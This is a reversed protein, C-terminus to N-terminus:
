VSHQFQCRMPVNRVYADLTAKPDFGPRPARLLLADFSAEVLRADGGKAKVTKPIAYLVLETGDNLQLALTFVGTSFAIVTTATGDADSYKLTGNRNSLTLNFEAFDGPIEGELTIGSGGANTAQCSLTANSAGAYLQTAFALLSLFLLFKM